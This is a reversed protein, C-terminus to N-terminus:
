RATPLAPPPEEGSEGGLYGLERLRRELDASLETATAGRARRELGSVLTALLRKKALVDEGREGGLDSRERPDILLDYLVSTTEAGPERTEILKDRRGRLARFVVDRRNGRSLAPRAEFADGRMLPVLDRGDGSESGAGGGGSGGIGLLSRLTPALDASSVVDPRRAAAFGPARILLPVRIQEEYVSQGHGISGHDFLEEGHDSTVIVIAGALRGSRELAALVEAVLDDAVRVSADYLFSAREQERAKEAPPLDAAALRLSLKTPDAGELLSPLAADAAGLAKLVQPPASYNHAAYTHLFLFLPRRRPSELRALAARRALAAEHALQIARPDETAAAWATSPYAPDSIGYEEFGRAFGFEPHVYGGGTIAVTEYGLGRLELPLWPADGPIRAKPGHAGHRDPLLGSLLTAHSPLTWPAAAIANEFVVASEALRELAPSTPQPYGHLSLRDARVTDLSILIVDPATSDSVGELRPEALAIVGNASAGPAAVAITLVARSGAIADLALELPRWETAANATVAVEHRVAEDDAAVEITIQYGAAHEEFMTAFSLALRPSEEPVVVEARLTGPPAILVAPRTAKGVTVARRAPNAPDALTALLWAQRRELRIMGVPGDLPESGRRVGVVVLHGAPRAPDLQHALRPTEDGEPRAPDRRMARFFAANGRLLTEARVPDQFDRPALDGWYEFVVFGEGVALARSPDIGLWHTRLTRLPFVAIEVEASAASESPDEGDGETGLMAGFLPAIWEGRHRAGATTVFQSWSTDVVREAQDVCDEISRPIVLSSAVELSPEDLLRLLAAPPEGRGCGLPLGAGACIAFTAFRRLFSPPRAMPPELRM